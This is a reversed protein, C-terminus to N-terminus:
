NVALVTKGAGPDGNVISVVGRIHVDTIHARAIAVGPSAGKGFTAIGPESWAVGRTADALAREAGPWRLANRLEQWRTAAVDKKGFGMERLDDESLELRDVLWRAAVMLDRKNETSGRIEEPGFDLRTSRRGSASARTM